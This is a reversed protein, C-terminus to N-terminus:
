LAEVFEGYRRARGSRCTSVAAGACMAARSIAQDLDILNVTAAGLEEVLVLPEPADLVAPHERLVQAILKQAKAASSEYGIGVTFTARRNPNSSFNKITSKYVTAYLKVYGGTVNSPTLISIRWAL